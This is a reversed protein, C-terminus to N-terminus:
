QSRDRPSKLLPTADTRLKCLTVRNGRGDFRVWSMFLRMMYLGKKAPRENLELGFPNPVQDPNFGSGEDIIEALVYDDAILYNFRVTKSKDGRHGHQIANLLAEAVSWRISFIDLYHYGRLVLEATLRRLKSRIQSVCHLHDERFYWQGAFPRDKQSFGNHDSLNM